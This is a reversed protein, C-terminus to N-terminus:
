DIYLTPVKHGTSHLKDKAIPKTTVPKPSAKGAKQEIQKPPKQAQNGEQAVEEVPPLVLKEDTSQATASYLAKIGIIILIVLVALIGCLISMRWARRPIRQVTGVVYHSVCSLGNRFQETPSIRPKGGQKDDYNSTYPSAWNADSFALPAKPPIIPKNEDVPAASQAEFLDLGKVVNPPEIIGSNTVPIEAKPLPEKETKQFPTQLPPPICETAPATSEPMPEPANQSPVPHPPPEVSTPPPPPAPPAIPQEVHPPMVDRTSVPSRHGSYVSMFEQVLPIPDIDVCECYHKVFGRGYIAAPIRKFNNNEMDEIIQVLIRTRQAVQSCSLGKAERAKRLTEGFDM